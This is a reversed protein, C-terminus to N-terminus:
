IQTQQNLLKLYYLFIGGGFIGTLWLAVSSAIAAGLIGYYLTLFYTLGLNIVLMLYGNYANWNSKGVAQIMNGFPIRLLFAGVLGICLIQLIIASGAYQEGFLFLIIENSLLYVPLIVVLSVLLFLKFYSAFYQKLFNKNKYETAIKVFDAQFFMSPIFMLNFPIMAGVRYVALQSSDTILNGIIINDTLLIMKLLWQVM